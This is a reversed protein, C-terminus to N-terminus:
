ALESFGTAAIWPLPITGLASSTRITLQSARTKFFGPPVPAIFAVPVEAAM